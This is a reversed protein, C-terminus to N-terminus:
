GAKKEIPAHLVLVPVNANRLTKEAVSGLFVHSLGRRGHTGMVILDAGLRKAEGIIVDSPAGIKLVSEASPVRAKLKAMLADLQQRASDELVKFLDPSLYSQESYAIAPIEYVHVVTLRAGLKKSLEVAYDLAHGAAESFDTALLIHKATEM